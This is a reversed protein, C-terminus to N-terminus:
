LSILQFTYNIIVMVDIICTHCLRLQSSGDVDSWGSYVGQGQDLSLGVEFAAHTQECCPGVDQWWFLNDLVKWWVWFLKDFQFTYYATNKFLLYILLLVKLSLFRHIILFTIARLFSSGWRAVMPCNSGLPNFTRHLTVHAFMPTGELWTCLNIWQVHSNFTM